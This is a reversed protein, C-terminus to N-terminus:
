VRRAVQGRCVSAAIRQLRLAEGCHRHAGRRKSAAGQPRGPRMAQRGTSRVQKAPGIAKGRPVENTRVRDRQLEEVTRLVVSSVSQDPVIFAGGAFARTVFDVLREFVGRASGIREFNNRSGVQLQGHIARGLGQARM